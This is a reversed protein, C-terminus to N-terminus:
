SVNSIEKALRCRGEVPQEPGIWEQWTVKEMIVRGFWDKRDSSGTQGEHTGGKEWGPQGVEGERLYQTLRRRKTREWAMCKSGVCKPNDGRNTVFPCFMELADDEKRTDKYSPTIM